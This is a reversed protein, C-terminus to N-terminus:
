IKRPGWAVTQATAQEYNICLTLDKGSISPPLIFTKQSPNHINKTTKWFAFHIQLLWFLSAKSYEAAGSCFCFTLIPPWFIKQGNLRLTVKFLLHLAMKFTSWNDYLKQKELNTAVETDPKGRTNTKIKISLKYSSLIM